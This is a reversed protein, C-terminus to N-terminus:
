SNYLVVIQKICSILSMFFLVFCIGIIILNKCIIWSSVKRSTTISLLDLISPLAVEVIFAATGGLASILALNPVGVALLFALLNIGLRIAYEAVFEYKKGVFAEKFLGAWVNNHRNFFILIYSEFLSCTYLFNVCDSLYSNAPLNFLVNDQVEDGYNAYLIIGFSYYFTIVTAAAVNLSGFTSVMKEPRRMNNKFPLIMGTCCYAKVCKAVCEPISHIDGFPKLAVFEKRQFLSSAITVLAMLLTFINTVSSYPVLIDLINPVLCLLTLPVFEVSIIYTTKINLDFRKLLSQIGNAILVLYGANSTPLGFFIYILYRIFTQLKNFPYPSKEFTKEAVDVYSLRQVQLEQCLKRETSLLLHVTHYYVIGSVIVTVTGTVYGLRKMIYPMLLFLSGICGRIILITAAGSSIGKRQGCDHHSVTGTKHEPNSAEAEAPTNADKQSFSNQIGSM